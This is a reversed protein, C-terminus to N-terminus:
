KIGKYIRVFGDAFYWCHYYVIVTGREAPLIQSQHIGTGVEVNNRM